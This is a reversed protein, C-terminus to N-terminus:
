ALAAKVIILILGIVVSAGGVLFLFIQGFFRGDDFSSKSHNAVIIAVIGAVIMALGIGGMM